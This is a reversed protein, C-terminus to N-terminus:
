LALFKRSEYVKKESQQSNGQNPWVSRDLKAMMESKAGAIMKNHDQCRFYDNSRSIRICKAICHM